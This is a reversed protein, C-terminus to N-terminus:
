TITGNIMLLKYETKVKGINKGRSWGLPLPPLPWIPFVDRARGSTSPGFFFQSTCIKKLEDSTGTIVFIVM